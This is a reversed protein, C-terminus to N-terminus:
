NISDSTCLNVKVKDKLETINNVFADLEILSPVSKAFLVAEPVLNSSTSFYMIFYNSNLKRFVKFEGGCADKCPRRAFDFAEEHTHAIFGSLSIRTQIRGVQPINFTVLEIGNCTCITEAPGFKFKSCQYDDDDSVTVNQDRFAEVITWTGYFEAVNTASVNCSIVVFSVLACLLKMIFVEFLKSLQITM